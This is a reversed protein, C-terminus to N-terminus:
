HVHKSSSMKMSVDKVM